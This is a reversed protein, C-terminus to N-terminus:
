REILYRNLEDHAQIKVTEDESLLASMGKLMVRNARQLENIRVNDNDLHKRIEKIEVELESIREDQRLEPAKAQKRYMVLRDVINLITLLLGFAAVILTFVEQPLMKM